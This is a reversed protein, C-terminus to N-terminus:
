AALYDKFVLDANKPYYNISTSPRDKNNSPPQYFYGPGPLVCYDKKRSTNSFINLRSTYETIFFNLLTLAVTHGSFM